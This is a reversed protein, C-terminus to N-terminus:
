QRSWDFSVLEETDKVIRSLKGTPLDIITISTNTSNGVAVARSDPSWVLRYPRSNKIFSHGEYLSKQGPVSLIFVQSGAV